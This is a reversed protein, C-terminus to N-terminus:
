KKDEPKPNLKDLMFQISEREQESLQSLSLGLELYDALTPPKDIGALLINPLGKRERKIRVNAPVKRPTGGSLQFAMEDRERPSLMLDLYDDSYFPETNIETKKIIAAPRKSSTAPPRLIYRMAEGYKYKKDNRITM